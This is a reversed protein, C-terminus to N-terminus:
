FKLFKHLSISKEKKFLAIYIGDSISGLYIRGETSNVLESIIFRGRSDYIIIEEIKHISQFRFYDQVPNPFIQVENPEINQLSTWTANYLSDTSVCIDDIFYYAPSYTNIALSDTNSYDYFNGISVYQYNSDAVFSGSIKHWYISDSLISDVHLHSFNDIPAPHNVSFPISFFRLGLNNSAFGTYTEALVAYFSFYYKFGVQLPTSLNVGVFERANGGAATNNKHYTIAGVFAGGSHAFQYGFTVNPVSLGLGGCSNFYDPSGRYSSWNACAVMQDLFIPCSITDEFSPNPVLNIQSWASLSCYLMILFLINRM